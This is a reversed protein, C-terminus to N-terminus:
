IHFLEKYKPYVNLHHRISNDLEEIMVPAVRKGLPIYFRAADKIKRRIGSEDLNHLDKTNDIMDAIKVRQVTERAFLLRLKYANDIFVAANTIEKAMLITDESITNKSLIYVGNSIEFGFREKIETTIMETDEVIDHLLAICQTVYDDYGYKKLMDRVAEPHVVYPQGSGKRKQDEHYKFAYKEALGVLREGDV